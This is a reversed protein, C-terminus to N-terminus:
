SIYFVRKIDDRWENKAYTKSIEIQFLDYDAMYAALKASSQRGSGGIGILLAHGNDQKLIRSVKSVHEIAFRFMVLNMPVKSVANYDELYGEMVKSLGDLDSIEDYIKSDGDPKAYDGFILNRIHVDALKENNPALHELLKNIDQKLVDNLVSKTLTFFTNKDDDDILRDYFVRYIEHIWLRYLKKEEKMVSSPVLLVSRTVRAFDRLNFM